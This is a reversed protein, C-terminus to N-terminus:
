TRAGFLASGVRVWSAGMAAAIAYDGSMGMSLDSLGHEKALQRLLAFHLSSEEGAPPICMLGTLQPGFMARAEKILLGAEEPMVGAKQPEKGTNVQILLRPRRGTKEMIKKLEAMLKPRDLTEIADFIELAEAVKNTQLPGILHLRIDPFRKKLAPWKAKAEQVRNEGFLRHGAELLPLIHEEGQTKTVAMIQAAPEAAAGYRKGSDRIDARISALQTLLTRPATAHM